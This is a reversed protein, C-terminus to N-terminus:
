ATAKKLGPKPYPLSKLGLRKAKAKGRRNLARWYLHKKAGLVLEVSQFRRRLKAPSWTGFRGYATRPHMEEGDVRIASVKHGKEGAYRWSSSQYVGGHHGHDPDAYSVLLDNIAKRAYIQRMETAASAILSSMPFVLRPLRVLRQLEIVPEKWITAPVGFVCAAVARGRDGFLGGSEHATVALVVRRPWRRSYHHKLVLARAEAKADSRLHLGTM